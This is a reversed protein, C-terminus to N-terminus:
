ERFTPNNKDVFESILTIAMEQGQEDMHNLSIGMEVVLEAYKQLTPPLKVNQDLLVQRAKVTEEQTQHKTHLSLGNILNYQLLKAAEHLIRVEQLVERKTNGFKVSGDEKKEPVSVDRFFLIRTYEDKFQLYAGDAFLTDISSTDIDTPENSM